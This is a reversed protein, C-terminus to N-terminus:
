QDAAELADFNFAGEEAMQQLRELGRLRRVRWQDVYELLAANIAETESAGGLHRQAEALLEEDVGSGSGKRVAIETM